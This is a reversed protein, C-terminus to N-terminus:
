RHLKATPRDCYLNGHPDLVLYSTRGLDLSAAPVGDPGVNLPSVDGAGAITSMQGAADVHRVLGFDNDSFYFGGKPDLVLGIPRSMQASLAPGGDGSYGRSGCM